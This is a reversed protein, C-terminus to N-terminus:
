SFAVRIIQLDTYHEPELQLTSIARIGNLTLDIRVLWFVQKSDLMIMKGNQPATPTPDRRYVVVGQITDNRSTVYSELVPEAAMITAAKTRFENAIEKCVLDRNNKAAVFQNQRHDLQAFLRALQDAM